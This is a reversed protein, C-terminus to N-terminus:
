DERAVKGAQRAQEVVSDWQRRVEHDSPRHGDRIRVLEDRVERGLASSAVVVLMVSFLSSIMAFVAGTSIGTSTTAM